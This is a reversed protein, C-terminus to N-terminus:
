YPSSAAGVRTGLQWALIALIVYGVAILAPIGLVAWLVASRLLMRNRIEREDALTAAPDPTRAAYRAAATQAKEVESAPAFLGPYQLASRSPTDTM